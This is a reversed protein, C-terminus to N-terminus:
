IQSKEWYRLKLSCARGTLTQHLTALNKETCCVLVSFFIGFLWLMDLPWLIYFVHMYYVLINWQLDRLFNGL